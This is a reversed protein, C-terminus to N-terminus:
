GDSSSPTEASKKLTSEAEPEPFFATWVLLFAAVCIASDAVNFAPWHGYWPLIVDLFDIVHGFLIRDLLNGAIGSLMLAVALRTTKEQFVRRFWLVLLVVLAVAALALFIHNNNQGMGFAAGTNYVRVLNFVGPIVPISAHSPITALVIWKTVVDLLFIPLTVMLLLPWPRLMWSSVPQTKSGGSPSEPM